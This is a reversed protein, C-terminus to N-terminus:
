FQRSGVESKRSRAGGAAAWALLAHCASSAACATEQLLFGARKPARSGKIASVPHIKAARAQWTKLTAQWTKLTAQWTKLTPSQSLISIGSTPRARSKCKKGKVGKCLGVEWKGGGIESKSGGKGAAQWTKLTAQWTKLTPWERSVRAQYSTGVGAM